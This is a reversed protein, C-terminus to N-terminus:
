AHAVANKIVDRGLCLDMSGAMLDGGSHGALSIILRIERDHGGNPWGQGCRWMSVLNAPGPRKNEPLRPPCFAPLFIMEIQQPNPSNQGAEGTHISYQSVCAM